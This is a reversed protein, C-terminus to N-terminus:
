YDVSIFIMDICIHFCFKKDFIFPEESMFLDYGNLEKYGSFLGCVINAIRQCICPVKGVNFMMMCM